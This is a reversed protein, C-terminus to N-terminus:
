IIHRHDLDLLVTEGSEGPEGPPQKRDAEQMELKPGSHQRDHEPRIVDTQCDARQSLVLVKAPLFRRPKKNSL